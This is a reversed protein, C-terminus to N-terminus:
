MINFKIRYKVQLDTDNNNSLLLRHTIKTSEISGALNMGWDTLKRNGSQGIGTYTRAYRTCLGEEPIRAREFLTSSSVLHM